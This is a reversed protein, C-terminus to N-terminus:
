LYISHILFTYYTNECHTTFECDLSRPTFTSIISLEQTANGTALYNSSFTCVVTWLLTLFDRVSTPKIPPRTSLQILWPHSMMHRTVLSRSAVNYLNPWFIHRSHDSTFTNRRQIERKYKGSHTAGAATAYPDPAPELRPAGEAATWDAPLM